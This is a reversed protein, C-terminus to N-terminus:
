QDLDNLEWMLASLKAQNSPILENPHGEADPDEWPLLLTQVMSVRMIM